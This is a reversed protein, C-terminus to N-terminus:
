KSDMDTIRMDLICTSSKKWLGHVAIDGRAEEGATNDRPVRVEREIAAEEAESQQTATVGGVM